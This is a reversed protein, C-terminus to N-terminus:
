RYQLSVTSNSFEYQEAVKASIADDKRGPPERLLVAAITPM